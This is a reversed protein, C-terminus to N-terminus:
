AAANDRERHVLEAFVDDFTPQQTEIAVVENGSSRFSEVIRPTAEGADDVVATVRRDGRAHVHRLGPISDLVAREIPDRTAIHLVEGGVVRKRLADPVGIAALRGEVLMAVEDCEEAETVIQTTVLLTVGGARLRHLEEWISQRLVPDVGATPEDIFLVGPRHVLASALALRRQEGGSMEKALRDRLPLLGVADLAARVAASRKWFFIGYLSAIFAVNEGATLDPYLLFNQPQYGIRERTRSRFRVPDEGLVRIRGTTPRLAGTLLRILTTKGSGSPGILGLIRGAPLDFTVDDVAVVPGFRRTVNELVIPAAMEGSM